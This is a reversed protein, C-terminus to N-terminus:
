FDLDDHRWESMLFFCLGAGAIVLTSAGDSGAVAMAFASVACVVSLVRWLRCVAHSLM